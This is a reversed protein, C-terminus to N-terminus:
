RISRTASRIASTARWRRVSRSREGYRGTRSDRRHRGGRSNSRKRTLSAGFYEIRSSRPHLAEGIDSDPIAPSDRDGAEKREREREYPHVLSIFIAIGCQTTERLYGIATERSTTEKERREGSIVSPLTCARRIFSLFPVCTASPLSPSLSFESALAIGDFRTSKSEVVSRLLIKRM